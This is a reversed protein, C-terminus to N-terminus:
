PVVKGSTSYGLVHINVIQGLSLAERPTDLRAKFGILKSAPDIQNDVVIIKGKALEDGSSNRTTVEVPGNVSRAHLQPLVDAPLSFVVSTPHNPQPSGQSGVNASWGMLASAVALVAGSLCIARHLSM